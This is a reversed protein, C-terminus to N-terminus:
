TGDMLLLILIRFISAFVIGVWLKDIWICFFILNREETKLQYSKRVGTLPWLEKIFKCINSAFCDWDLDQCIEFHISFRILKWGNMRSQQTARGRPAM